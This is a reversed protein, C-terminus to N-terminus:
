AKWMLLQLTAAIRGGLSWRVKDDAGQMGAVKAFLGEAIKRSDVGSGMEGMERDRDVTAGM